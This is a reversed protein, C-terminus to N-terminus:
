NDRAKIYCGVSGISVGANTRNTAICRLLVLTALTDLCTNLKCKGLLSLQKVQPQRAVVTNSWVGSLMYTSEYLVTAHVCNSSMYSDKKYVVTESPINM